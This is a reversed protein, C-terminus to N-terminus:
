WRCQRRQHFAQSPATVLLGSPKLSAKLVMEMACEYPATSTHAPLGPQQTLHPSAPGSPEQLLSPSINNLLKMLWMLLCLVDKSFNLITSLYPLTNPMSFPHAEMRLSVSVQFQTVSVQALLLASAQVQLPFCWVGTQAPLRTPAPWTDHQIYAM